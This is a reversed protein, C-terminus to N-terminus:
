ALRSASAQHHARIHDLVRGGVLAVLFAPSGTLIPWAVLSLLALKLRSPEGWHTRVPGLLALGLAGLAVATAVRAAVHVVRQDHRRERAFHIGFVGLSLLWAALRSAKVGTPSPASQALMATAAGVLVYAAGPILLTWARIQRMTRPNSSKGSGGAVNNSDCERPSWGMDDAVSSQRTPTLKM